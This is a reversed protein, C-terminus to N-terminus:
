SAPTTVKVFVIHLIVGGYFRLNGNWVSLTSEPCHIHIYPHKWFYHHEVRWIMWKNMPNEMIKVMWKPPKGGIEPFMWIYLQKQNCQNDRVDLQQLESLTGKGDFGAKTQKSKKGSRPLLFGSDAM